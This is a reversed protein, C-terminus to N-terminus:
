QVNVLSVHMLLALMVMRLPVLQSLIWTSVVVQKMVGSMLVNTETMVIELLFFVNEKLAHELMLTPMVSVQNLKVHYAMMIFFLATVLPLMVSLLNAFVTKLVNLRVLVHVQPVDITLQAFMTIMVLLVMLLMQIFVSETQAHILLVHTPTMVILLLEKVSLVLVHIMRPVHLTILVLNLEQFLNTFASEMKVSIKPVYTEMQAILLLELNVNVQYVSTTKPALIVM